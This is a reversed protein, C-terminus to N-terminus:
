GRELFNAPANPGWVDRRLDPAWVKPRQPRDHHWPRPDFYGLDENSMRDLEAFTEVILNDPSRHYTAINHGPGHRVPGWIINLKNQGLIECSELLHAADRLEFAVHHVGPSPGRLFNVTHHDPGCRMFVFTDSVRDSVRFGLVRAYFESAPKLDDVVFAVHGLKIPAIGLVPKSELFESETYLEIRTELPDTFALLKRVGPRSDSREECRIGNSKILRVADQLSLQPGIDFSLAACRSTQGAQLIVALEGLKTALFASDQGRSVMTLGIVHEYYDLQQELRPTELTVCGIRKAQVM